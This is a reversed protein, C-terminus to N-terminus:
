VDDLTQAAFRLNSPLKNVCQLVTSSRMAASAGAFADTVGRNAAFSTIAANCLVALLAIVRELGDIM